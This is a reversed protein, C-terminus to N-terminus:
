LSSSFKLVENAEDKNEDIVQLKVGQTLKLDPVEDDLIRAQIGCSELLSRSIEAEIRNLFNKITIWQTM